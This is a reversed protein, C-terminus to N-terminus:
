QNKKLGLSNTWETLKEKLMKGTESKEEVINQTEEPDEKLDYLEEKPGRYVQSLARIYKYDSTRIASKRDFQAEEAYVASRLQDTEGYILPMASKGDYDEYKIGLFDLVTPLIDFHQIFGKIRKNRPFMPHRMILPVHITVDYLGLHTFVLGHETFSEGHDATLIILTQDLIGQTELYEVLKGIEHDVYRIAADYRAIQEQTRWERERWSMPNVIGKIIRGADQDGIKRYFNKPPAYPAHTDWYHVFLFFDRNRYKSILSKAQATVLHAEDISSSKKLRAYRRSLLILSRDVKRFPFSIPKIYSIFGSYYDYGRRHWRGLWDVALTTYGKARLIQRLFRIGRKSLKRINEKKVRQGHRLIGHSLPYKGSSITTLSADTVNTCSYADEFLIGKRALDDINPSTPRSHGYCGLNRARVADVVVLLVNPRKRMKVLRKRGM